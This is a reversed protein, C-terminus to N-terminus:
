PHSSTQFGNEATQEENLALPPLGQKEREAVHLKYEKLM